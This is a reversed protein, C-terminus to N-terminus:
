NKKNVNNKLLCYFTCVISLGVLHKSTAWAYLHPLILLILFFLFYVDIKCKFFNAPSKFFNFLLILVSINIFIKNLITSFRLSNDFNGDKDPLAGDRYYSFFIFKIKILINNFYKKYNKKFFESNKKEFFDYVEWETKINKPIRLDSPILDTSKKPYFDQFRENLVYTMVVSNISTIKKGFPFIGTKLFGFSGWIIIAVFVSLLPLFLLKSKYKKKEFYIFLLPILMTLFFMNSKTLYLIFLIISIFIIKKQYGSVLLLFLLPLLSATITDAYVIQMQVILNYPNYLVLFLFLALHFIKLRLSRLCKYIIFFSFSFFFINKIFIIFFINLSIKGLFTILLPLAPLIMVYFNIGLFNQQYNKKYFINELLQGHDFTVNRLILNYNHDVLNYNKILFFLFLLSSLIILLLFFFYISVLTKQKVESIESNLFYTIKNKFNNM